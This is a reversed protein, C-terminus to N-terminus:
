AAVGEWEALQELVAAMNADDLQPLSRTQVSTISAAQAKMVWLGYEEVNLRAYIDLSEKSKWRCMAQILEPSAGMALLSCALGIRFSHWSYKGCEAAPMICRLLGALLSDAVTTVMPTLSRTSVFLPTANRRLPHVPLALELRALAAAANTVSDPVYPLYLPRGGFYVGFPDAKSPPPVLIAFDGRTLSNLQEMTPAVVIVGGIRWSLSARSIRMLDFDRGPPLALESKRFGGSFATCLMAALSVGMPTSWNITRSRSLKTGEAVQLIKALMAASIPEKRRPILAVPGNVKVFRLIISRFVQRLGIPRVMDVKYRRKHIHRISLLNAYIIDPKAQKDQKSRPKVEDVVWLLFSAQLKEEDLQAARDLGSHAHRNTREPKTGWVERCFTCWRRWHTKEVDLTGPPVGEDVSAELRAELDAVVETQQPRLAWPSADYWEPRRDPRPDAEAGASERETRALKRPGSSITSPEELLLLSQKASGCAMAGFGRRLPPPEPPPRPRKLRIAVAPTLPEWTAQPMELGVLDPEVEMRPQLMRSSTEIHPVREAQRHARWEVAPEWELREGWNSRAPRPDLGVLEGEPEALLRLELPTPGPKDAEGFRVANTPKIRKRAPESGLDGEKPPQREAFALVREILDIAQQPVTLERLTIGLLIALHRLTDLEGRSPADAVVNSEGYVHEWEIQTPQSLQPLALMELHIFQMVPSHASDNNLIKDVVQADVRANVKSGASLPGFVIVAVVSALFELATIHLIFMARTLPYSFFYGHCFGGLSPVRAGELAADMNWYLTPAGMISDQTQGLLIEAGTCGACALVLERWKACQEIHEQSSAILSQPGDAIGRRIIEGYMFYFLTRDDVFAQYFHELVGTVGRYEDFTVPTSTVVRDLVDLVRIRKTTQWAALNLAAYHDFGWVAVATGLQRKRAIAMLIKYTKLTRRWHRLFRKARKVGVVMAFLDDTYIWSTYLRCEDRGTQGALARRARIWKAKPDSPGLEELMSDLRQREDADFSECTKDLVGCSWHSAINSAFSYGFGLRSEAAHVVNSGGSVDSNNPADCLNDARWLYTCLWFMSPHLGLQNFMDKMDDTMDIIPEGFIQAAQHLIVGDHLVDTIAPKIERAWKRNGITRALQGRYRVVTDEPLQAAVALAAEISDDPVHVIEDARPPGSRQAKVTPPGKDEDYSKLGVARNFSLDTRNYYLKRLAAGDSVRRIRKEYKRQAGGQPRAHTPVFALPKFFRQYNLGELRFMETEVEDIGLRLSALHPCFVTCLSEFLADVKGQVGDVVMGVMEQDPSNEFDRGFAEVDLDCSVGAEFDLVPIRDGPQHYRLDFIRGRALPHM